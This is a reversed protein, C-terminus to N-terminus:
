TQTVNVKNLFFKAKVSENTDGVKFNNKGDTCIKVEGQNTVGETAECKFTRNGIIVTAKKNESIENETSRPLSNNM